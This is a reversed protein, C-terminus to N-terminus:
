QLCADFLGRIYDENGCALIADKDSLGNVYEKQSAYSQALKVLVDRSATAEHEDYYVVYVSHIIDIVENKVPILRVEELKAVYDEGIITIEYGLSVLADCKGDLVDVQAYSVNPDAAHLEDIMAKIEDVLSVLADYAKQAADITNYHGAMTGAALNLLVEVDAYVKVADYAAWAATIDAESNLTVNVVGDAAVAAVLADYLAQLEAVKGDLEAKLAALGESDVLYMNADDIAYTAVWAEIDSELLAIANKTALDAAVTQAAIRDNIADADVKAAQLQVYRKEYGKLTALKENVDARDLVVYNSHADCLKVLADFATMGGKLDTDLTIPAVIADVAAVFADAADNEEDLNLAARLEAAEAVLDRGEYNHFAEMVVADDVHGAIYAEVAEVGEVDEPFTVGDVKVADIMGALVVDYRQALIGEIITNYDSVLIDMEEVTTSRLIAIIVQKESSALNMIADAPLLAAYGEAVETAHVVESIKAFAVATAAQWQDLYIMNDELEGIYGELENIEEKASDLNGNSADLKDELDKITDKLGNIEKQAADKVAQEAAAAKEDAYSRVANDAILAVAASAIMVVVVILAIFGILKNKNTFM